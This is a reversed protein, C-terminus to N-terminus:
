SSQGRGGGCRQHLSVLAGTRLQESTDSVSPVSLLLDPQAGFVFMRGRRALKTRTQQAFHSLWIEKLVQVGGPM